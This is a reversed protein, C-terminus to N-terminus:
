IRKTKNFIFKFTICFPLSVQLTHFCINEMEHKWSACPPYLFLLWAKTTVM